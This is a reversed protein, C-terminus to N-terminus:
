RVVTRSLVHGSEQSIFTFLILSTILIGVAVMISLNLREFRLHMFNGGIMVAKVMMFILLFGILFWRPFHLAEAGLMAVTVILLVIWTFVYIRYPNSTSHGQSTM